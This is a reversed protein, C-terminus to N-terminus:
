SSHRSYGRSASCAPPLAVMPTGSVTWLIALEHCLVVIELEKFEPSRCGLLVLALIGRFVLYILPALM